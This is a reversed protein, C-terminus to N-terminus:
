ESINESRMFSTLELARHLQQPAMINAITNKDCALGPYLHAVIVM